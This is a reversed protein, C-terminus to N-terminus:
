GIVLERKGGEMQSRLFDKLLGKLSLDEDIAPWHIGTGGAVLIFNRLDAPSAKKLVRYYSLDIIFSAGNILRIFMQENGPAFQVENIRLGQDFILKELADYRNNLTNM